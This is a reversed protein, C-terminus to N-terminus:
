GTPNLTLRIRADQSVGVFWRCSRPPHDVGGRSCESPPELFPISPSTTLFLSPPSRVGSFVCPAPTRRPREPKPEFASSESPCPIRVRRSIAPSSQSPGGARKRWQRKPRGPPLPPSPAPGRLDCRFPLMQGEGADMLLGMGLSMKLLAFYRVDAPPPSAEGTPYASSFQPGKRIRM